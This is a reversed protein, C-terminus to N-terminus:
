CACHGPLAPPTRRCPEGRRRSGDSWPLAPQRRPPPGCRNRMSSRRARGCRHKSSCRSGRPDSCLRASSARRMTARSRVTRPWRKPWCCRRMAAPGDNLTLSTATRRTTGRVYHMLARSERTRISIAPWSASSNCHTMPSKSSTAHRLRLAAEAEAWVADSRASASAAVSATRSPSSLAPKRRRCNGCLAGTNVRAPGGGRGSRCPSMDTGQCYRVRREMDQDSELIGVYSRSTRWSCM